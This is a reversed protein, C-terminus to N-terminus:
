LAGWAVGDSVRVQLTDPCYILCGEYKVPDPLDTSAFRPLRIPVSPVRRVFDQEILRSLQPDISSGYGKTESM